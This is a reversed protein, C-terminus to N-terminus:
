AGLAKQYQFACSWYYTTAAVGTVRVRVTQTGTDVDVTFTAASSSNVNTLISGILTVNGGSARRATILFDGGVANTHDSQAGTITGKLTISELQNLTIAVISTVTANTTNVTAQGYIADTRYVDASSKQALCINKNNSAGLDLNIFNCNIRDIYVTAPAVKMSVPADVMQCNKFIFTCPDSNAATVLNTSAAVGISSNSALYGINSSTGGLVLPTSSLGGTSHTSSTISMSLISSSASADIQFLLSSSNAFFLLFASDGIISPDAGSGSTNTVQLHDAYITMNTSAPLTLLSSTGSIKLVILKDIYFVPSTASVATLAYANTCHILCSIISVNSTNATFANVGSGPAFWINQFSCNASASVTVSGVLKVSMLPQTSTFSPASTSGPVAVDSMGMINIGDPVTLNETYTGPKVYINKQNTNSAGDSTAQTIAGSITTFDSNTAGVIYPRLSVGTTASAELNLTNAGLTFAITGGTSTLTAFAPDASTAGLLVQGNTGAATAVLSAVGQGLIVGHNTLNSALFGASGALTLTGAINKGTVFDIGGLKLTGAGAGSIVPNNSSDITTEYFSCAASSSMTIAATAGTAHYSHHSIITSNGALTMTGGFINNASAVNSGSNFQVPCFIEGQNFIFLGSIQMTRTTGIGVGAEYCFTSAGGTPNNIGGDNTGLSPNFDWFSFIGAWNPLNLFYGDTVGCGANTFNLEATGAALSSFTDGVTTIFTINNFTNSGTTAPTHNGVIVCASPSGPYGSLIQPGSISIDPTMILNETYTGNQVFIFGGGALTAANIASQITQYGAKGIPGVVYPTIPFRGTGLTSSIGITGPGNTFTISGDTSTLSGVRIHPAVAAGILLQGDAVMQNVIPKVGRTDIGGFFANDNDWGPM